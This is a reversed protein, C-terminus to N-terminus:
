EVIIQAGNQGASIVKDLTRDAEEVVPFPGFRLRYLPRGNVLIKSIQPSGVTALSAALREANSKATFAGVQIWLQTTPPVEM